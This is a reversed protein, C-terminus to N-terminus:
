NRRSRSDTRLQAPQKEYVNWAQDLIFAQLASLEEPTIQGAFVPMGKDRRLGGLVIAAFEDHTQASARRLDPVTDPGVQRVAGPGHCDECGRAAFLMRGTQVLAASDPRPRPPRTFPPEPAVPPLTAAGSISLALLRAPGNANDGLFVPSLKAVGGGMGVPVLVLQEGDVEVSSPAAQFSSGTAMSWLKRGSTADYACIQGDATGEFVLDGATALVGGNTHYPLVVTWRAKQAIPDWAILRGARDRYKPDRLLGWWDMQVDGGLDMHVDGGPAASAKALEIITPLVSAPVYVLGTRPSYSMAQWNHAGYVGPSLTIRQGPRKYYRAGPQEVPRGTKLDIRSAWNVPVINNASLLKGTPADLVYFFGNKPATMVVRRTKGAISLEAVMIHMTANYDWADNPTTQYHWVYAGTDANVAMISNTFLEDGRGAGRELPNQPQAGDTGFYLLNLTPDYTIADWVSGGAIDKWWDKGWTKAAMAMAPNEFGKAPDGPITYFRWLHRGTRADFADVHGRSPTVDMNANGIFVKDGGVRPAGSITLGSECTVTEWARLGTKRDVAILRCDPTGVFVYQKWLALGRNAVAGLDVIVSGDFKVTPHFEWLMWGTRLDHAWIAGQAGSQYVVGDAVLSNGLLGGKTPVDAYWKLGLHNVNSTNIQELASYHQMEATHGLLPWESSGSAAAPEVALGTSNGLSMVVVALLLSELRMLPRAGRQESM